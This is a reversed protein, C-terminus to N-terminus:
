IFGTSNGTTLCLTLLLSIIIITCNIILVESFIDETVGSKDVDRIGMLSQVFTLDIQSTCFM